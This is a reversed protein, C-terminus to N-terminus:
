LFKVRAAVEAASLVECALGVRRIAEGYGYAGQRHYLIGSHSVGRAHLRLFDADSTYIVRRQTRAAELIAVDSASRLGAEQVIAVDIGRRRLGQIVPFPVHEDCLLALPM